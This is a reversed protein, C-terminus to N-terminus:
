TNVRTSLSRMSPSSCAPTMPRSCTWSVGSRSAGSWWRVPASVTRGGGIVPVTVGTLRQGPMTSPDLENLHRTVAYTLREILGPTATESLAVWGDKLVENAVETLMATKGVGRAGTFITLRVPAGPGDRLSEEFEEIVEGRGVLLPPTAGATPKFSNRIRTM